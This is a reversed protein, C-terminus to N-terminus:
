VGQQRQAPRHVQLRLLRRHLRSRSSFRAPSYERLHVTETQITLIPSVQQEAGYLSPLQSQHNRFLRFFM